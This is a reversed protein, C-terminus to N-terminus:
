KRKEFWVNKARGNSVRVGIIRSKANRIIKISGFIPMELTNKNIFDIQFDGHRVHHGILENNKVFIELISELESSYFRGTYDTLSISSVNEEEYKKVIRRTNLVKKKKTRKNPNEKKKLLTNAINREIGRSNSSSFNTLIAISLEKEPYHSVYSRFGGIGGSHSIKEYSKFDSVVVGFAYKNESGDNLTDITKLMKFASKWGSAPKSFNQLWNLLDIATSHMNGSGTYGWFEIARFFDYRSKYYSTANNPVVRDFRDEVYTNIMGLPKFVNTKMWKPFKQKTINEIINTMLIYGTNCYLYEDGPKFNLEKQKLMFRYLDENTRADGNRWGALKLMAHLSRMGSTHHLLHRITIVDGFNPMDPLYKRIDDDISLLGREHLLVIGMATFQKSVSATNFITKTTNPALYELSALGYAKSYIVKGNQMIGIVGGPHNDKKWANFLNDISKFQINNLQANICLLSSYFLLFLYKLKM